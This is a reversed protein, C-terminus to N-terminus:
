VICIQIFICLQQTHFFCLCNFFILFFHYKISIYNLISLKFTSHKSLYTHLFYFFFYVRISFYIYTKASAAAFALGTDTQMMDIM